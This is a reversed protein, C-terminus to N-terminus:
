QLVNVYNVLHSEANIQGCSVKMKLKKLTSDKDYCIDSVSGSGHNYLLSSAKYYYCKDIVTQSEKIEFVRSIHSKFTEHCRPHNGTTVLHNQQGAM